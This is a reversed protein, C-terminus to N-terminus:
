GRSEGAPLLRTIAAVADAIGHNHAVDAGFLANAVREASVADLAEALVEARKLADYEALLSEAGEPSTTAGEAIALLLYSRADVVTM